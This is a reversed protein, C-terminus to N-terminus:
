MPLPVECEVRYGLKGDPFLHPFALEECHDDSLIPLLTKSQGPALIIKNEDVLHLVESILSTKNTAIRQLNGPDEVEEFNEDELTGSVSQKVSLDSIDLIEDSTLELSIIIDEYFM